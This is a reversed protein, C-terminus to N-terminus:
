RCVEAVAAADPSNSPEADPRKLVVKVLRAFEMANPTLIAKTYGKVIHPTTTLYWLGDADVVLPINANKVQTRSRPHFFDSLPSLSQVARCM